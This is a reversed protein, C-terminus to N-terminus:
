ALSEKVRKFRSELADLEDESRLDFQSKRLNDVSHIGTDAAIYSFEQIVRVDKRAACLLLLIM